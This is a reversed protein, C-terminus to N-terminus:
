GRIEFGVHVVNFMGITEDTVPFVLPSFITSVDDSARSRLLVFMVPTGETVPSIFLELFIEPFVVANRFGTKFIDHFFFGFVV